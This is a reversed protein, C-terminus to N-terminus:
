RPRIFIIAKVPDKVSGERVKVSAYFYFMHNVNVSPKVPGERVKVSVHIKFLRHYSCPYPLDLLLTFTKSM